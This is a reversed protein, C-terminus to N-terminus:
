VVADATAGSTLGAPPPWICTCPSAYCSTPPPELLAAPRGPTSAATNLGVLTIVDASPEAPKVAALCSDAASASAVGGSVSVTPLVDAAKLTVWNTPTPRPPSPHAWRCRFGQPQARSRLVLYLVSCCAARVVLQASIGLTYRPQWRVPPASWRWSPAVAWWSMPSFWRDAVPGRAREGLVLGTAGARYGPVLGQVPPM